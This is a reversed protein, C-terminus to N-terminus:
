WWNVDKDFDIPEVEEYTEDDNNENEMKDEL